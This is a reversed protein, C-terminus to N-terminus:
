SALLEALVVRVDAVELPVEFGQRVVSSWGEGVPGTHVHVVKALVDVVWYAPVGSRAYTRAKVGLDKALSSRSVEIVLLATDPHDDTPRYPVVALDPEPESLDDAVYPAGVSLTLEAPLRGVLWRTLERILRAHPGGQPNLRVLAGELLEVREGDFVGQEVLADYEVRRLPRLDLDPVASVAVTMCAVTRRSM